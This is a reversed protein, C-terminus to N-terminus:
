KHTTGTTEKKFLQDFQNNGNSNCTLCRLKSILVNTQLQVVDTFQSYCYYCMTCVGIF